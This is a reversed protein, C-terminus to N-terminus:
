YEILEEAQRLYFGDTDDFFDDQQLDEVEMGIEEEIRPRLHTYLPYRMADIAHNDKDEPIELNNGDSDEKWHYSAQENNLNVNDDKTHIRLAKMFKIGAVISGPHKDAPIVNFGAVRIEEIEAPSASDAYLPPLELYSVLRDPTKTFPVKHEKLRKIIGPTTLGRVYFLETPYVDRSEISLHICATPANFGFDIGYIEETPAYPTELDLNRYQKVLGYDDRNRIVRSPWPTELFPMFVLNGIVGWKALGYVDWMYPDYEPSEPDNFAMIEDIYEKDLFNNDRFTSTIIKWRGKPDADFFRKKLWHGANIPNFSLIIQKVYPNSPRLRLNIQKLDKPSAETAEEVWARTMGFISKMKEPDDLGHCRFVSGNPVFTWTLETLNSRWLDLVGLRILAQKFEAFISTRMTVAVKRFAIIHHGPETMATVALMQAIGVSKGSGAGGMCIVIRETLYHLERFKPNTIYWLNSLDVSTIGPKPIKKKM